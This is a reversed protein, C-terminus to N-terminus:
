AVTVARARFAATVLKNCLVPQISAPQSVYSAIRVVVYVPVPVGSYLRVNITIM